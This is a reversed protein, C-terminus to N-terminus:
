QIPILLMRNDEPEDAIANAAQVASVSSGAGKAIDWLHRRGPRCLILTPRDRDPERLTGLELSTIMPLGRGSTTVTQLQIEARVERGSHQPEGTPIAVADLRSAADANLGTHGEWNTTASRLKGERDYGLLQFRGPIDAEMRDGERRLQPYGTWFQADVGELDMDPFEGRASVRERTEDLIMPLRLEEQRLGVERRTSYADETLELLTRDSIMYQAVLSCKLALNEEEMDLELGTVALMVDAQADNEYANELEALQSFPVEFNRTRIRGDRDFYVLHLKGLGRIAAKDTSVRAESLEPQFTYSLIQQVPNSGTELTEELTFTKEGAEKPLRVPYSRHLLQVDEPVEPARYVETRQETLGEALCSIGVRVLIKRASLNRGDVFRLLMGVRMPGERDTEAGEWKMQFPIWADVVRPASGDEPAYLMTAQVGGSVAIRSGQWEKGRLIAQGWGALVRGVDPLDETLRIEQTLEQDKVARLVQHLCSLERKEFQLQM